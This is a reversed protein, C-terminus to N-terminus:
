GNSEPYRLVPQRRARFRKLEDQWSAVIESAAAGRRLADLSPPHVLLKAMPAPDFADRHHRLLAAALAMGVTVSPLAQRDRVTLRVGQCKEGKFVSAEPTFSAPKVHLGPLDEAELSAALRAGDIWPAGFLQFPTETGRGVSLKCFELLGVGPYLLAAEPSRMNPSPNIWPLGADTFDDSRRWGTVPVVTVELDLSLESRFLLALEGATMGHRVPLPHCAVFTPEGMSVPGEIAIGNVPNIRDLVVFRLGRGSAAKMCELMTAIYTYFRCGIDQIDFVLTDLGKLQAPAPRRREGYLSFVPLGTAADRGDEIGDRDETGRIGHEPSFLARLSVGPAAAMLDVISKGDLSRGTHNTVLGAKVGSLEKWGAAALADLGPLVQRRSAPLRRPRVSEHWATRRRTLGMAEGALTSFTWRLEKVAGAETPHNRNTLLVIFADAAPDIWLATGTWGTHGFSRDGFCEGKPDAYRSAADFGLTRLTGDPLKVPGTMQRVLRSSLLRRGGPTTGGDLLFRCYKALDAATTFLGAHGAVGGMARSTPDHVVGHVLGSAERTTPAIRPLLARAPRFGTDTMGLPRFLRAAAFEHLPRGSVRRVIEGLLIFNIDSYLFKTNPPNILPEAAARRVGEECGSWPPDSRPIGSRTGSVHTLLHRVTVAAKGEGAFEPILSAVPTDLSLKGDHVLLFISPATATVKTLSAADFITDAMMPRAEPDVMRQGAFGSRLSGRRGICWAAGPIRKAAIAADVAARLPVLRTDDFPSRRGAAAAGCPLGSTALVAARRLLARRNSLPLPNPEMM